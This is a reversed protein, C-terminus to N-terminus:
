LDFCIKNLQYQIGKYGNLSGNDRLITRNERGGFRILKNLHYPSDSCRQNVCRCKFTCIFHNKKEQQIQFLLLFWSSRRKSNRLIEELELTIFTQLDTTESWFNGSFATWILWLWYFKHRWTSSMNIPHFFSCLIIWWNSMRILWFMESLLFM